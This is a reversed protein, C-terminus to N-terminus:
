DNRYNCEMRDMHMRVDLKIREGGRGNVEEGKEWGGKYKILLIMTGSDACKVLQIEIDQLTFTGEYCDVITGITCKDDNCIM